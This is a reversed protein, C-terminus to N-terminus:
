KKLIYRRIYASKESKVGKDLCTGTTRDLDDGLADARAIHQNISRKTMGTALSPRM